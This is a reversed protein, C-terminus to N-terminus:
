RRLKRKTLSRTENYKRESERVEACLAAAAPSLSRERLRIIAYNTRLWSTQFPIIAIRGQGLMPVLKAATAIGVADSVSVAHSMAYLNQCQIRPAFYRGGEALQGMASGEPLYRNARKPLKPGIFPFEAINNITVKKLRQLPHGTRCFFCVPRHPLPEIVLGVDESAEELEGVALDIRREHLASPIEWWDLELIQMRLAAHKALINGVASGLFTQAVISGAGIALDGANLGKLLAIERKVEAIDLAVRRASQLVVAGFPTPEVGRRSRDFLTSDFQRELEQISRTLTPQSIGLTEAARAFNRHRDLAVACELLRIM